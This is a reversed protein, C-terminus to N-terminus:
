DLGRSLFCTKFHSIAKWIKISPYDFSYLWIPLEEFDETIGMEILTKYILEAPEINLPRYVETDKAEITMGTNRKLPNRNGKHERNFNLM